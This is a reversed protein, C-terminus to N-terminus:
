VVASGEPFSKVSEPASKKYADLMVPNALIVKIGDDPQSVAVAQWTEYGKFESFAIGNPSKLTFRDQEALAVMAVIALSAAAIAFAKM